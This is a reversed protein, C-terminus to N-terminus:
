DFVFEKIAGGQSPVILELKPDGLKAFTDAWKPKKFYSAKIQKTLKDRLIYKPKATNVVQSSSYCREPRAGIEICVQKWLLGHGRGRNGWKLVSLSHSCEHLIVDAVEEESNDQVLQRSLGITKQGYRCVGFRRMASDFEFKWGLEILGHKEMLSTALKHAAFLNM